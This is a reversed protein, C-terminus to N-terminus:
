LSISSEYIQKNFILEFITKQKITPYTSLQLESDVLYKNIKDPSSRLEKISFAIQEPSDRDIYFAADKCISKSWDADTIILPRKFVWSEIINNSFSELKSMLLVFDVSQYLSPIKDKNVVGILDINESVKYKSVLKVFEKHEYSLDLPATIVFEFDNFYKRLEFAIEPIMSINKNLHWGSFVLIRLKKNIRKDSNTIGSSGLFNNSTMIFKSKNLSIGFISHSRLRMNENEFILGNSRRIGFVWYKKIINRKFKGFIGYNDWFSIEPYFVNSVAVGSVQPIKKSLAAYGFYTYVIDINNKRVISPLIFIEQLIRFVPNTSFSFIVNNPDKLLEKHISSGKATLFYFQIDNTSIQNLGTLFNLGVNQGGGSKLTAFNILCKM